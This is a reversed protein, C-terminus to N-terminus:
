KWKIFYKADLGHQRRHQVIDITLVAVLGIVSIGLFLEM